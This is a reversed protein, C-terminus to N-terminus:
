PTDPRRPSAPRRLREARALLLTNRPTVSSEFLQLVEVRLGAEELSAARDFVVALEVLRSLLHRPLSLRRMAAHDRRANESHLRLEAETAPPLARSALARSSLEALGAHAKRRNVGRMEEGPRVDHGRARLLRRLALRTERARLNDVLTAEVGESRFTLNTLGLDAKRLSFAGGARSLAVRRPAAIKQLCCSVLALECGAVSVAGVLRDGLEGCAHLGVALDTARLALAQRSLDAAEFRVDLAGIQRAREESLSSGRELRLADRDLALTERGFLEASLRSFHGSGAGVDVVREAEKALPELAGLLAGLQERKRAPVGRLADPPLPLPPGAARPLETVRRAELVLELFGAPAGDIGALARELGQSEWAELEGDTLALLFEDWGRSVCWGPPTPEDVPGGVIDLVPTLVALLQTLRDGASRERDARPGAVALGPV